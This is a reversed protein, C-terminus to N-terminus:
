LERGTGYSYLVVHPRIKLSRPAHILCFIGFESRVFGSAGFWLDSLRRLFGDLLGPALAAAYSLDRPQRGPAMKLASKSRQPAERGAGLVRMRAKGCRALSESLGVCRGSGSGWRQGMVVDVPGLMMM